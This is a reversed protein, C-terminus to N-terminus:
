QSQCRTSVNLIVINKLIIDDYNKPKQRDARDTRDARRDTQEDTLVINETDMMMLDM